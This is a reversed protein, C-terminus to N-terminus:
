GGAVAACLTGMAVSGTDFTGAVAALAGILMSGEISINVIGVRENIVAGISTLMLPASLRISAQLWNTISSMDM